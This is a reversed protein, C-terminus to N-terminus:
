HSMVVRIKTQVKVRETGNKNQFLWLALSYIICLLIMQQCIVSFNPLIKISISSSLSLLRIRFCRNLNELAIFHCELVLRNIYLLNAYTM